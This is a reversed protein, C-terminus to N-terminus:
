KRYVFYEGSQLIIKESPIAGFKEAGFDLVYEFDGDDDMFFYFEEQTPINGYEGISFAGLAVPKRYNVKAFHLGMEKFQYSFAYHDRGVQSYWTAVSQNRQAFFHPIFYFHKFYVTTILVTSCLSFLILDLRKNGIPRSKEWSDIWRIGAWIFLILPAWIFRLPQPSSGLILFWPTFMLIIVLGAWRLEVALASRNKWLIWGLVMSLVVLFYQSYRDGLQIVTSVLDLDWLEGLSRLSVATKGEGQHMAVFRSQGELHVLPALPNAVLIYNRVLVSGVFFLPVLGLLIAKGIGQHKIVLVWCVMLPLLMLMYNTFKLGLAISFVLFAGQWDSKKSAEIFLFLGTMLVYTNWTDVKGSGFVFFFTGKILLAAVVVLQSKTKGMYRQSFQYLLHLLALTGFADMLAVGRYGALGFPISFLYEVGLPMTTYNTLYPNFSLGNAHIWAINPLYFSLGDENVPPSFLRFFYPLFVLALFGFFLSPVDLRVKALQRFQTCIGFLLLIWSGYWVWQPPFIWSACYFFLYLVGLGIVVRIHVEKSDSKGITFVWSGLSFLGIFCFCCSVIALLSTLPEM